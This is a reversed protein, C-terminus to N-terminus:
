FRTHVTGALQISSSRTNGLEDPVFDSSLSRASLELRLEIRDWAYGGGGLLHFGSGSRNDQEPLELREHHLGVGMYARPGPELFERGFRLTVDAGSWRSGDVTHSGDAETRKRADDAQFYSLGISTHENIAYQADILPGHARLRYADSRFRQNITIQQYAYGVGLTWRRQTPPDDAEVTREAIRTTQEPEHQREGEPQPLGGQWWLPRDPPPDVDVAPTEEAPSRTPADDGELVRAIGPMLAPRMEMAHRALPDALRPFEEIIQGFEELFAEDSRLAAEEIREQLESLKARQHETLLAQSSPATATEPSDPEEALAKAGVACMAGILIVVAARRARRRGKQAHATLGSM